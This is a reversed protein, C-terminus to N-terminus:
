AANSCLSLKNVINYMVAHINNDSETMTKISLTLWLFGSSTTTLNVFGHMVLVLSEQFTGLKRNINSMNKYYYVSKLVICNKKNLM